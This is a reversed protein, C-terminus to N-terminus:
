DEDRGDNLGRKYIEHLRELANTIEEYLIVHASNRDKAALISDIVRDPIAQMATRMEQGAAFLSRFVLDKDVLQGQKQKLEVAALRLKVEATQRKIDALSRGGQAPHPLNPVEDHEEEIQTKKKQPAPNKKVAPVVDKEIKINETVKETREYSPDYNRGWEKAASVAHILPRKPNTLDISDVIKGAAIAKRVASESVGVVKAFQRISVGKAESM